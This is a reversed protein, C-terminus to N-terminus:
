ADVEALEPRCKACICGATSRAVMTGHRRDNPNHLIERKAKEVYRRQSEIKLRKRREEATEKTTGAVPRAVSTADDSFITESGRKGGDSREAQAKTPDDLPEAVIHSPRVLMRAPLLSAAVARDSTDHKPEDPDALWFGQVWGSGDGDHLVARGNVEPTNTARAWEGKEFMMQAAQQSLPGFALRGRANDRLSTPITKGEPRQTALVLHMDVKRGTRGIELLDSIVQPEKAGTAKKGSARARDCLVELEDVFIVLPPRYTRDRKLRTLRDRLEQRLGGITAEIQELSDMAAIVGPRGELFALGAYNIDIAAIQIRHHLLHAAAVRFWSTKGGGTSGAAFKHPRLPESLDAVAVEGAGDIGVPLQYWELDAIPATYDVQGPLEPLREWVSTGDGQWETNEWDGPMTAEIAAEVKERKTKEWYQFGPHGAITLYQPGGATHEGGTTVKPPRQRSDVGIIQGLAERLLRIDDPDINLHRLGHVGLPVILAYKAVPWTWIFWAIAVAGVLWVAFLFRPSIAAITNTKVWVMPHMRQQRARARDAHLDRWEAVQVMAYTWAGVAAVIFVANLWQFPTM